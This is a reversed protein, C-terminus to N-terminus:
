RRHAVGTGVQVDLVADPGTPAGSRTVPTRRGCSTAPSFGPPAQRKSPQIRRYVEERHVVTRDPACIGLRVEHGKLGVVVVSVDNGIRVEQGIRRTLVLMLESRCGKSEDRIFSMQRKAAPAWNNRRCHIPELCGIGNIHSRTATIMRSPAPFSYLAHVRSTPESCADPDTDDDARTWFDSRVRRSDAAASM